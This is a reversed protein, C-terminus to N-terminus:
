QVQMTWNYLSYGMISTGTSDNNFEMGVQVADLYYESENLNRFVKGMFSFNEQVMTTLPVTVKGELQQQSVYYVGIWGDGSGTHPLIYVSFNLNEHSGNVISPVVFSGEYKFYSSTIEEQHYLWIMIEVDPFKLYTTTPNQSMWIDYSFDDISGKDLWLSYYLCSQIQPLNEVPAPLELLPSEISHGAFPFWCEEGYMVGPYGNVGINPSIKHFDTMNIDVNLIPGDYTMNVYGKAFKMNWIFPSVLLSADPTYAESMSYASDSQHHGLITFTGGSNYLLIESANSSIFGPKNSLSSPINNISSTVTSSNEKSSPSLTSHQLIFFSFLIIIIILLSLIIAVSRTKM